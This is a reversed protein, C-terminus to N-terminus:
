HEEQSEQPHGISVTGLQGFLYESLNAIFFGTGNACAPHHPVGITVYMQRSACRTGNLM